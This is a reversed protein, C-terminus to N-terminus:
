AEDVLFSADHEETSSDRAKQRNLIDDLAQLAKKVKRSWEILTLPGCGLNTATRNIIDQLRENEQRLEEILEQAKPELDDINYPNFM